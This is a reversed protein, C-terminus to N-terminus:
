LFDILYESNTYDAQQNHTTAIIVHRDQRAEFRVSVCILKRSFRQSDPTGRGRAAFGPTRDRNVHQEVSYVM